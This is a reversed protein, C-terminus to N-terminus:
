GKWAESMLKKAEGNEIENFGEVNLVVVTANERASSVMNKLVQRISGKRISFGDIFIFDFSNIKSEEPNEPNIKLFHVNDGHINFDKLDINIEKLTLCNIEKLRTLM